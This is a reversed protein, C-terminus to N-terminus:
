ARRRALLRAAISESRAVCDGMSVGSLYNGALYVRPALEALRAELAHIRANHGVVYQPIARPHRLIAQFQPQLAQSAGLMRAMDQCVHQIIEDDNRSFLNPNLAGGIFCSLLAYGDPARGPFLSSAWISGLTEVGETRPVLFGFGDLTRPLRATQIGLHVVALPVYPIERLIAASAEDLTAIIPEAKYGTVALVLESCDLAEGEALCLRLGSEGLREVREITRNLRISGGPLQEALHRTLTEIGGDFSMLGYRAKKSQTKGKRKRRKEQMTALAGKLLSGSQREWDAVRKLVASASLSEPDGAYVGTLFPGLLRDLFESGLRRRAFDAVSEDESNTKAPQFPESFLRLKGSLSFLPTKLFSVPDSPVPTLGHRNLYIYRKKASPNAPVPELGIEDCLAMLAESTSLFTNPGWELRYGDRDETWLSGGIRASPELLVVPVGARHLRYAVTLGSIGAGYVAVPQETM